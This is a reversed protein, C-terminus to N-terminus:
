PLGFWAGSDGGAWCSSGICKFTKSCLDKYPESNELDPKTYDYPICIRGDYVGQVRIQGITYADKSVPYIGKDVTKTYCLIYCGPNKLFLNFTPLTKPKFGEGPTNIVVGANNIYVTFNKPLQDKSSKAYTLSILSSILYIILSILMSGFLLTFFRVNKPKSVSGKTRGQCVKGNLFM